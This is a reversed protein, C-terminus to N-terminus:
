SSREIGLAARSAAQALLWAVDGVLEAADWCRLKLLPGVLGDRVVEVILDHLGKRLGVVVLIEIAIVDEVEDGFSKAERLVLWAIKTAPVAEVLLRATALSEWGAHSRDIVETPSRVM